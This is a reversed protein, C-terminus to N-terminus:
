KSIQSAHTVVIQYAGDHDDKQITGTVRIPKKDLVLKELETSQISVIRGDMCKLRLASGRNKSFYLYGVEFDEPVGTVTLEKGVNQKIFELNKPNRPEKREREDRDRASEQAITEQQKQYWTFGAYGVLSLTIFAALALIAPTAANLSFGGGNGGSNGGSAQIDQSNAWTLFEERQHPPLNYYASKFQDLNM